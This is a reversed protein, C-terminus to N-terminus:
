DNDLYSIRMTERRFGKLSRTVQRIEQATPLVISSEAQQATRKKQAIELRLNEIELGMKRLENAVKTMDLISKVMGIALGLDLSVAAVAIWPSRTRLIFGSVGIIMALVLCISGTFVVRWSM